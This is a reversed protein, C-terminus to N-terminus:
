NKKNSFLWHLLEKEAFAHDWSDHGVGPYESYRPNAGLAKLVRVSTRSYEVSVVSDAAGHFIWLPVKRAFEEAMKIDGGSAIPFAAAFYDPWRGLMDYTGFGGMSLGGLYLRKKDVAKARVLSDMLGKLLVVPISPEERFNFLFTSMKKTTEDMRYEMYAWSNGTTCQPFLVIAPYNNRISDQLFLAGGNTLQSGNDEGIERQGHLFVVLPYKKQKDYNLPFLIRYPLTHGNRIFEGKVYQSFDQSRVAFSLLLFWLLLNVKKM